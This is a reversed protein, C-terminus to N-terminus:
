GDELDFNEFTLQVLSGDAVSVLWKCYSNSSYISPYNPSSINGISVDILVQGHKGCPDKNVLINLIPLRCMFLMIM